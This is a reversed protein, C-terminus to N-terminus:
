FKFGVNVGADVGSTTPNVTPTIQVSNHKPIALGIVGGLLAGTAGGFIAGLLFGEGECEPCDGSFNAFESGVFGGMFFGLTGVIVMGPIACSGDRKTNTGSIQKVDQNMLKKEGNKTKLILENKNKVIENGMAESVSQDKTQIKYRYDKNFQAEQIPVSLKQVKGACAVQSALLGFMVIMSVAKKFGTKM